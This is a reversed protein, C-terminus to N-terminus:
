STTCTTAHRASSVLPAKCVLQQQPAFAAGNWGLTVQNTGTQMYLRVNGLPPSQWQGPIFNSGTTVGNYTSPMGNYPYPM